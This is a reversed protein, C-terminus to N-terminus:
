SRFCARADLRMQQDAERDRDGIDVLNDLQDSARGIGARRLGPQHRRSQGTPSVPGSISSTFSGSCGSRRVVGIAQALALGLTDEVQPQVAQCPQLAVLDAVVQFLDAVVDGFQQRDQGVPFLQEGDQAVLQDLHLRLEAVVRRVVM